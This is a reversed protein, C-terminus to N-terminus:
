RFIVREHEFPAALNQADASKRKSVSIEQDILYSRIASNNMKCIVSGGGELRGWLYARCWNSNKEVAVKAEHRPGFHIEARSAM